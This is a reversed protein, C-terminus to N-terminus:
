DGWLATILAINISSNKLELLYSKNKELSYM